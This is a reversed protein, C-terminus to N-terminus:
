EVEENKIDLLAHRDTQKSTVFPGYNDGAAPPPTHPTAVPDASSSSKPVQLISHLLNAVTRIHIRNWEIDERDNRRMELWKSYEHVHLSGKTRVNRQRKHLRTQQKSQRHRRRNSILTSSVTGGGVVSLVTDSDLVVKHLM